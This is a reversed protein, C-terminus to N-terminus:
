CYLVNSQREHVMHMHGRWEIPRFKLVLKGGGLFTPYLATANLLISCQVHRQMSISRKQEHLLVSCQECLCVGLHINYEGLRQMARAPM